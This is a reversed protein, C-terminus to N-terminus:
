FEPGPSNEEAENRKQMDELTPMGSNAEDLRIGLDLAELIRTMTQFTIDSAEGREIQAYRVRSLGCSMATDAQTLSKEKRRKKIQEALDFLDM